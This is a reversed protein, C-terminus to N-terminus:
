FFFYSILYVILLVYCIRGTFKLIREFAIKISVKINIIRNRRKQRKLEKKWGEIGGFRALVEPPPNNIMNEIMKLQEEKDYNTYQGNVQNM